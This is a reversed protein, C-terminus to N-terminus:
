AGVALNASTKHESWRLSLSSASSLKHHSPRIGHTRARLVMQQSLVPEQVVARPSEPKLLCPFFSSRAETHM